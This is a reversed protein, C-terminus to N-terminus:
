DIKLEKNEFKVEIEARMISKEMREDVSEVEFTGSLKLGDGTKQLENAFKKDLELDFM